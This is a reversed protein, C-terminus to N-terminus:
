ETALLVGYDFAHVVGFEFDCQGGVVFRLNNSYSISKQETTTFDFGMVIVACDIIQNFPVELFM